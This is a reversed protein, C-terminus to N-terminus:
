PKPGYYQCVMVAGNRGASGGFGYVGGINTDSNGGYGGQGIYAYYNVKPADYQGSGNQTLTSTTSFANIQLPNLMNESIIQYTITPTPVTSAPAPITYKVNYNGNFGGIGGMVAKYDGSAKTMGISGTDGTYSFTFTGGSTTGGAGGIGGVNRGGLGGLGGGATYTSTNFVFTSAVGNSGTNGYGDSFRPPAGLGGTGVTYTYSMARGPSPNPIYIAGLAGGGGGGGGGGDGSSTAGGGGGGGGGGILVVFIGTCWSNTSASVSTGTTYITYVPSFLSAIDTGAIEFFLNSANTYSYSSATLFGFSSKYLFGLNNTTNETYNLSQMLPITYEITNIPTSTNSLGTFLFSTGDFSLLNFVFLFSNINYLNFNINPLLTWTYGQNRTVYISTLTTAVITKTDASISVSSWYTSAPLNAFATFNTAYNTSLYLQSSSGYVVFQGTPDCCVCYGINTFSTTSTTYSSFGNTSHFFYPSMNCACYVYEGDQSCAVSTIYGKESPSPLTYNPGVKSFTSGTNTSKWLQSENGTSAGYYIINGTYSYAINQSQSIYGTPTTFSVWSSGANTSTFLEIKGAGLYSAYSIVSGNPSVGTNFGTFAPVVLQTFSNGGNNSYFLEFNVGIALIDNLTNSSAAIRFGPSYLETIGAPQLLVNLGENRTSYLSLTGLAVIGGPNQQTCAYVLSGDQSLAIGTWEGSAYNANTQTWTGLGSTTNFFLDMNTIYNGAFITFGDGSVGVSILGNSTVNVGSFSAGYNTSVYVKGGGAIFAVTKGDYSCQIQGSAYTPASTSITSWTSGGNSSKTVQSNSSNIAYIYTGSTDCCIYSWASLPTATTWSGAGSTKNYVINTGGVAFISSCISDSCISVYTKSPASTLTWLSGSNTSTYINNSGCIAVNTGSTLDCTLGTIFFSGPLTINIFSQGANTSKALTTQMLYYVVEGSSTCFMNQGSQTPVYSSKTWTYTAM